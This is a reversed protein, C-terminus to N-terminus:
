RAMFYGTSRGGAEDKKLVKKDLLDQIDRLATDTSCKTIKAWKSTNLRGEFGDFLKNIIKKQRDNFYTHRNKEWFHAKALVSELISSSAELSEHLCHLYWHLWETLDPEGKQTEELIRYYENRELRITASMSYFRQSSDDARALQMDAIARAIRGNGDEFPHITVFWFHAVGSRLVADLDNEANFWELFLQM